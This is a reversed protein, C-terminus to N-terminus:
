SDNKGDRRLQNRLEEDPTFLEEELADVKEKDGKTNDNEKASGSQQRSAHGLLTAQREKKPSKVSSVIEEDLSGREQQLIVGLNENIMMENTNNLNLLQKLADSVIPIYKKIFERKELEHMVGHKKRLYQGLKRGCEQLALKFEKIIEPYHAIAEKAESTFPAWVSAIHLVVVLPGQPLSNGSQSINYSKWNTQLIAKTAACANQQYLLPVRNAFRLM